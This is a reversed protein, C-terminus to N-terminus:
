CDTRCRGIQTHGHTHRHHMRTHAQTCTHVQTYRHTCTSTGTYALTQIGTATQAQTHAHAQEQTHWHKYAHPQKHKLTHMNTANIDRVRCPITCSRLPHTYKTQKHPQRSLRAYRTHQACCIQPGNAANEHFHQVAFWQKGAVALYILQVLYELGQARWIFRLPRTHVKM